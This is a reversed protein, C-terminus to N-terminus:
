KLEGKLAAKGFVDLYDEKVIIGEIIQVIGIGNTAVCGWIEITGLCHRVFGTSCKSSLTQNTLRWKSVSEDSGFEHHENFWSTNKMLDDKKKLYEQMFHLNRVPNIIKSIYIKKKILKQHFDGTKLTKRAIKSSFDIKEDNRIKASLKNLNLKRTQQTSNIIERVCKVKSTYKYDPDSFTKINASKLCKNKIYKTTIYRLKLLKIAQRLLKGDRSRELSLKEEIFIVEQTKNGIISM